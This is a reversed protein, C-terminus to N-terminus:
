DDFSVLYRFLNMVNVGTTSGNLSIEPTAVTKGQIGRAAMALVLTRQENLVLGEKPLRPFPIKVFPCRNRVSVQYNTTYTLSSDGFWERYVPVIGWKLVDRRVLQKYTESGSSKWLDFADALFTTSESTSQYMMWSYAVLYENPGASTINTFDAWNGVTCLISGDFRKLKVSNSQLNNQSQGTEGATDTLNVIPNITVVKVVTDSVSPVLVSSGAEGGVYDTSLPSYYPIWRSNQPKTERKRRARAEWRRRSM